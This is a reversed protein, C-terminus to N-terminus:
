RPYANHRWQKVHLLNGLAKGADQGVILNVQRHLWPFDVRQQALIARSLTGQHLDEITEVLPIFTFDQDIALRNHDVARLIGNRQANAHDVLFKHEDGAKGHHFIHDHSQM